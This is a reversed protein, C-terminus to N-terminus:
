GGVISRANTVGSRVAPAVGSLAPIGTAGAVLMAALIIGAWGTRKLATHRPMLDHIFIVATIIFPIGLIAAGFLWSTVTGGLTSLWRAVAGLASGIFGNEAILITGTFALIARTAPLIALWYFVGFLVLMVAGLGIGSFSSLM